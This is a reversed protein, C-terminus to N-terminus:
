SAAGKYDYMSVNGTAGASLTASQHALVEEYLRLASPHFPQSPAAINGGEPPANTNWHKSRTACCAPELRPICVGRDSYSDTQGQNLM